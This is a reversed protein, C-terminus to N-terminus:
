RQREKHIMAIEDQVEGLKSETFFVFGNVKGRPTSLADADGELIGRLLGQNALYDALEQIGSLKGSLHLDQYPVSSVAFEWGNEYTIRFIYKEDDKM